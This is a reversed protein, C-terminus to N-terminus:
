ARGGKDARPELTRIRAPIVYAENCDRCCSAGEAKDVPYPNREEGEAIEVGCICCRSPDADVRARLLKRLEDLPWDREAACEPCLACTDGTEPDITSVKWFGGETIINGDNDFGVKRGCVVCGEALADTLIDLTFNASM